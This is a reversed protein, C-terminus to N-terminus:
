PRGKQKPPEPMIGFQALQLYEHHPQTGGNFDVHKIISEHVRHWPIHLVKSFGGPSTDNPMGLMVTDGMRCLKWGKTENYITADLLTISQLFVM